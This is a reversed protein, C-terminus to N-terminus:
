TVRHVNVSSSPLLLLLGTMVIMVLGDSALGDSVLGDSALGDSALGDSLLGDSM